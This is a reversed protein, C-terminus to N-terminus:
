FLRTTVQGDVNFHSVAPREIDVVETTCRGTGLAVTATVLQKWLLDQKSGTTSFSVNKKIFLEIKFYDKKNGQRAKGVLVISLPSNM